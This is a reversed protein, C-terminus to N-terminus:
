ASVSGMELFCDVEWDRRESDGPGWVWYVVESHNCMLDADGLDVDLGEEVLSFKDRLDM